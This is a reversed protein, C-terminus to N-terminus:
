ASGAVASPILEAVIRRAVNEAAQQVEPSVGAQTQFQNGEIGYVRLRRPLRGLVEALHLAEGVGLGHTSCGAGGLNARMPAEWVQVTGVPAGTLMADVVIVEDAPKWGDLINLPDGEYVDASIGFQALCEAVLVGAADDGRNRNGCCVIRM